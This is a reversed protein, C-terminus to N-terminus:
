GSHLGDYRRRQVANCRRDQATGWTYDEQNKRLKTFTASSLGARKECNLKAQKESLVCSGYNKYSVKM